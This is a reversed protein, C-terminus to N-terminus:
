LRSEDGGGTVVNQLRKVRRPKVNRAQALALMGALVRLALDDRM